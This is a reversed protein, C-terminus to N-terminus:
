GRCAVSSFPTSLRISLAVPARALTRLPLPKPPCAEPRAGASSSNAPKNAAEALLHAKESHARSADARAAELQKELQEIRAVSAADPGAPSAPAASAGGGPLHARNLEVETPPASGGGGGSRASCRLLLASCRLLVASRM